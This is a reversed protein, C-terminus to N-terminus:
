WQSKMVFSCSSYLHNGTDLGFSAGGAVNVALHFSPCYKGVFVQSPAMKDEIQQDDAPLISTVTTMHFDTGLIQPFKLCVKVM